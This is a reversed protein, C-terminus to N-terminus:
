LILDETYVFTLAITCLRAPLLPPYELSAYFTIHIDILVLAAVTISLWPPNSISM